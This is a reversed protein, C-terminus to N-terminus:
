YRPSCPVSENTELDMEKNRQRKFDLIYTHYEAWTNLDSVQSTEEQNNERGSYGISTIRVGLDPRTLRREIKGTSRRAYEAKDNSRNQRRKEIQFFGLSHLHTHDNGRGPSSQAFM